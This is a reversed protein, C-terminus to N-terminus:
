SLKAQALGRGPVGKECNMVPVDKGTVQKSYFSGEQGEERVPKRRNGGSWYGIKKLASMVFKKTTSPKSSVAKCKSPLDEVEQVV